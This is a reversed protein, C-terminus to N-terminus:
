HPAPSGLVCSVVPGGSEGMSLIEQCKECQDKMKLCGTSNHRIEKCVTRDSSNEPSVCPFTMCLSVSISWRSRGSGKWVVTQGKSMTRRASCTPSQNNAQLCLSPDPSGAAPGAPPGWPGRLQTRGGGGGDGGAPVDGAQEYKERADYGTRSQM